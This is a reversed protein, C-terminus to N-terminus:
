TSTAIRFARALDLTVPGVDGTGIMQGDLTTAPRVESTTGTFFLEDANDVEALSVSREHVVFGNQKALEIVVDRTVGRLILDDAPPTFLEGESVFFVNNHAGETVVGDRHLVVDVAGAEEAAQKALVNPLLGTSKVRPMMWRLDPHSIAAVPKPHEGDPLYPVPKAFAYVTPSVSEKPFAHTRPAVGRTVQVYVMAMPETGLQNREILQAHVETLTDVDFDLKIAGLSSALRELHRDLHFASGNYYATAEYCADGLLFGRDNVSVFAESMPVFSGNLYVHPDDSM